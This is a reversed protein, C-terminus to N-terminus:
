LNNREDDDTTKGDFGANVIYGFLRERKSDFAQLLVNDKKQETVASKIHSLMKDLDQLAPGHYCYYKEDFSKSSHVELRDDIVVLIDGERITINEEYSITLQGDGEYFDENASISKESMDPYVLKLIDRIRDKKVEIAFGKQPRSEIEWLYSPPYTNNM